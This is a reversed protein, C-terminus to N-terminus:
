IQVLSELSAIIQKQRESGVSDYYARLRGIAGAYIVQPDSILQSNRKLDLEFGPKKSTALYEQVFGLESPKSTIEYLDLLMGLDMSRKGALKNSIM